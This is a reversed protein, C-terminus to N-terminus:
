IREGLTGAEWSELLGILNALSGTRGSRVFYGSSANGCFLSGALDLGILKGALFGAGFHDGAGTSILPVKCVPGPVFVVEDADAGAAGDNPHVVITDVEVSERLMGCLDVVAEPDKKGVFDGGLHEALQWGEKLNLSLITECQATIAGLRGLLGDIDAGDRHQFEALDMFFPIEKPKRGLEGLRRGLWSWIEGVHPLKGWNVASLFTATRLEEDLAEAGAREILRDLTIEACSRMDSLMVKGDVFELCDSHAPEALTVLRRTRTALAEEFIPLVTEAGLAGCYTLGIRGEFLGDLASAFLPGNGGFRDGEHHVSMSTAIGAAASVKTGFDSMEEPSEMRIFSDIFGDFGCVGEPEVKGKELCSRFDGTVRKLDDKADFIRKSAM